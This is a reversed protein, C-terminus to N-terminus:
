ISTEIEIPVEIINMITADQCAMLRPLCVFTGMDIKM